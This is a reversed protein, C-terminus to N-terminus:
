KCLRASSDVPTISYDFDFEFFKKEDRWIRVRCMDHTLGVERLNQSDNSGVWIFELRDGTKAVHRWDRLRCDKGGFDMSAYAKPVERKSLGTETYTAAYGDVVFMTHTDYDGTPGTYARVEVKGNEYHATVTRAKRLTSVTARDLM